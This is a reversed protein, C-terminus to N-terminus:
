QRGRSQVYRRAAYGVVRLGCLYVVAGVLFWLESGLAHKLPGYFFGLAAIGLIYIIFEIRSPM